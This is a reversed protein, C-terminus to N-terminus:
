ILLIGNHIKSQGLLLSHYLFHVFFKSLVFDFGKGFLNVRLFIEGLLGDLLHSLQAHHADVERLGDATCAAVDQGVDHSDLLQGLDAAGCTNDQGGMGGQTSSRDILVASCVLLCLVQGLQAAAFPQTSEAQSLGAGAGVCLALLGKSHILAVM